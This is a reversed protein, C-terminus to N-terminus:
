RRDATRRGGGECRGTYEFLSMGEEDMAAAARRFTADDEEGRSSSTTTAYTENEDDYGYGYGYGRGDRGVRRARGDEFGTTGRGPTLPCWAGAVAPALALDQIRGRRRGIIITPTPARARRRATTM